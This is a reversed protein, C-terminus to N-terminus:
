CIERVFSPILAYAFRTKTTRCPDLIPISWAQRSFRSAYKELSVGSFEGRNPNLGSSEKCPGTAKSDAYSASTELMRRNYLPVVVRTLGKTPVRITNRFHLPPRNKLTVDVIKIEPREPTPSPQESRSRRTLREGETTLM